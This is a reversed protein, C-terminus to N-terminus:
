YGDNHILKDNKAIESSPIDEYFYRKLYTTRRDNLGNVENLFIYKDEDLIHYGYFMKNIYNQHISHLIRWRKMDWDIKNEFCLERRRENRIFQLNEDLYYGYTVSGDDAPISVLEYAKAGARERIENVHEIAEAMLTQDNNELGLEYAAEAWNM